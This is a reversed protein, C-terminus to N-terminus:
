KMRGAVAKGLDALVKLAEGRERSALDTVFVSVQRQGRRVVIFSGDGIFGKAADKREVVAIAEDGVGALKEYRVRGAASRNLPDLFTLSWGSAEDELPSLEDSELISLRGGPHDWLCPVVGYKENTRDLRGPQSGPFARQLEGIALLACPGEGQRASAPAPLFMLGVAAATLGIPITRTM